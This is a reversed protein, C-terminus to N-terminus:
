YQSNVQSKRISLGLMDSEIKQLLNKMLWWSLGSLRAVIRVNLFPFLSDLLHCSVSCLDPGEIVQLFLDYSHDLSRIIDSPLQIGNQSHKFNRMQLSLIYIYVKRKLVNYVLPPTCLGLEPFLILSYHLHYHGLHIRKTECGMFKEWVSLM